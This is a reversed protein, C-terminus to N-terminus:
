WRRVRGFASVTVGASAAGRRFTLTRSAVRGLGLADYEVGVTDSSGSTHVSVGYDRRLQLPPPTRAGGAVAEVAILASDLVVVLRAGGAAIAVMRTRALAAATADRAARVALTDRVRATAPALLGVLVGVLVMLLVLEVLTYGAAASQSGRTTLQSPHATSDRM